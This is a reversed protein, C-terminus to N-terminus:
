RQKVRMKRTVNVAKVVDKREQVVKPNKAKSKGATKEETQEAPRKTVTKKGAKGTKTKAM